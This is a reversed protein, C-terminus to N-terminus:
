GSMRLAALIMANICLIGNEVLAAARRKAPVPRSMTPLHVESEGQQEGHAGGGGGGRLPLPGNVPRADDSPGVNGGGGRVARAVTADVHLGSRGDDVRGGVPHHMEGPHHNITGHERQCM